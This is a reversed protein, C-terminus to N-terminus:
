PVTEWAALLGAALLCVLLFGAPRDHLGRPLGQWAVPAALVGLGGAIVAYPWELHASAGRFAGVIVAVSLLAGAALLASGLPGRMAPPRAASPFMGSALMGYLGATLASAGVLTSAGLTGM